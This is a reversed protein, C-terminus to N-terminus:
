RGPVERRFKGTPLGFIANPYIGCRTLRLPRQAPRKLKQRRRGRAGADSAHRRKKGVSAHPHGGCEVETVGQEDDACTLRHRQRFPTVLGVRKTGVGFVIIESGLFARAADDGEIRAVTIAAAPNREHRFDGLALADPFTALLQRSDRQRGKRGPQCRTSAAGRYKEASRHGADNSVLASGALRLLLKKM